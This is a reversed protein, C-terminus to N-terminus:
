LPPRDPPPGDLEPPPPRRDFDPPPPPRDFDPGHPRHGRPRERFHKKAKDSLARLKAAQEGSLMTEATAETQDIIAEIRPVSEQRLAELKKHGEEILPRLQEKQVTSLHLERDLRELIAQEPSSPPAPPFSRFARYHMLVHWCVGGFIAGSLFLFVASLAVKKSAVYPVGFM